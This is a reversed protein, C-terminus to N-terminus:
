GRAAHLLAEDLVREHSDMANKARYQCSQSSAPLGSSTVRVFEFTPLEAKSRQCDHRRPQIRGPTHGNL